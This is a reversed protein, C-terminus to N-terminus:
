YGSHPIGQPSNTSVHINTNQPQTSGVSAHGGNLRYKYEHILYPSNFHYTPIM